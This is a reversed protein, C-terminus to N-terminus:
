YNGSALLFILDSDSIGTTCKPPELVDNPTFFAFAFEKGCVPSAARLTEGITGMYIGYVKGIDEPGAAPKSDRCELEGSLYSRRWLPLALNSEPLRLIDMISQVQPYTEETLQNIFRPGSYLLTTDVAEAPYVSICLLYHILFYWSGYLFFLSGTLSLGIRVHNGPFSIGRLQNSSKVQCSELACKEELRDVELRSQIRILFMSVLLQWTTGM